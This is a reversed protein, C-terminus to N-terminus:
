STHDSVIRWGKAGKHLILDFVGTDEKPRGARVLHFRGYFVAYDPGLARIDQEDFSLKGLDATGTAYGAKYHAAIADYGQVLGKPTVFVTDPGQEYSAMFGALDGANWAIASDAMTKRIAAADAAAVPAAHGTGAAGLACLVLALALRRRM